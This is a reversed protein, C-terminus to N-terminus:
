TPKSTLASSAGPYDIRLSPPATDTSPPPVEPPDEPEPPAPTYEVVLSASATEGSVARATVTVVNAGAGLVIGSARWYITGEASGTSGTSIVWDVSAIGSDHAATGQVVLAPTTTHYVGSSAPATIRIVPAEAVTQRAVELTRFVSDGASDTATVIILNQGDMLPVSPITWNVGGSATGSGGRNSSWNVGVEGVGGSVTGTITIGSEATTMPGGPSTIELHIPAPRPPEGDVAAYLTRIAEIDIESLGSVQRYYPYMVAGPDDAHGLGLAHGLEHLVVSYLDVWAGNRWTEEDDFHLDGAIPEGNPPAPYFTHALVRGPGDFPYPDSHYGKAFLFNLNKPGSHSGGAVFSVDVYRAWEDLARRIEHEVEHRPLQTTLEELSYSLSAAGLGAGDWGPGVTAVYQGVPGYGTLAGACAITPFGGRLEASAPFVYAVEDWGALSHARALDGEVLLQDWRLDPNDHIRLSEQLAISRADASLVDPHFEVLFM